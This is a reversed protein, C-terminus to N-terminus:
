GSVQALFQAFGSDIFDCIGKRRCRRELLEFVVLLCVVKKVSQNFKAAFFGAFFSATRREALDSYATPFFFDIATPM